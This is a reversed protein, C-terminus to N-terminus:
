VTWLRRCRGRVAQIGTTFWASAGVLQFHRVYIIDSSFGKNWAAATRLASPTGLPSCFGRKSPALYDQLVRDWVGAVDNAYNIIITATAVTAVYLEKDFGNM